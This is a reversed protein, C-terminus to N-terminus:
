VTIAAELDADASLRDFSMLEEDTGPLLSSRQKSREPDGEFEERRGYILMMHLHRTRTALLESPIGYSEIFQQVNASSDFWTRWQTLQHRAQTFEASPTNSQTFVKKGPREIEIVTPFWSASHSAIWM